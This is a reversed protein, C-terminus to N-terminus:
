NLCFLDFFFSGSLEEFYYIVKFHKYNNKALYTRDIKVITDDLM